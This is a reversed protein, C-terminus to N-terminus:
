LRAPLQKDILENNVHVQYFFHVTELKKKKKVARLMFFYKLGFDNFTQHPLKNNLM